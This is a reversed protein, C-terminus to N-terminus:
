ANDVELMGKAKMLSILNELKICIYDPQGYHKDVFMSMAPLAQGKFLSNHTRISKKTGKWAEEFNSKENKVFHAFAFCSHHSEFNQDFWTSTVIAYSQPKGWPQFVLIPPKGKEDAYEKLEKMWTWVNLRKTKKCDIVWPVADIGGEPAVDEKVDSGRQLARQMGFQKAVRREFAKWPKDPM